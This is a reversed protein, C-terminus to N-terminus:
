PRRDAEVLAGVVTALAAGSLLGFLSIAEAVTPEFFNSAGIMAGRAAIAHPQSLIATAHVIFLLLVQRSGTPGHGAGGDRLLRNRPCRRPYGDPDIAELTRSAAGAGIARHCLLIELGAAQLADLIRHALCAPDNVQGGILLPLGCISFDAYADRLM